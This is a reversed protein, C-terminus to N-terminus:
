TAKSAPFANLAAKARDAFQDVRAALSVPDGLEALDIWEGYVCVGTAEDFLAERDDPWHNVEVVVNSHWSPSDERKRRYELLYLRLESRCDEPPLFRSPDPEFNGNRDKEAKLGTDSVIDIYLFQDGIEAPETGRYGEFGILSFPLADWMWKSEIGQDPRDFQYEIRYPAFGLRERIMAAIHVVRKQYGWLLRYARRVDLLAGSLDQSM